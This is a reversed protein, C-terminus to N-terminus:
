RRILGSIDARLRRELSEEARGVQRRVVEGIAELDPGFRPERVTGTVRLPITLWGRRDTLAQLAEDSVDARSFLDRPLGVAVALDLSGDPDLAGAVELRAIETVLRTPDIELKGGALSVRSDLAEYAVGDLRTGVLRDIQSLLAVSPLTGAEIRLTMEAVAGSLGPGEGTGRLELRAAGLGGPLGLIRNLDIAGARMALRYRYPSQALDVELEDVTVVGAPTNSEFSDLLYRGADARFSAAIGALGHGDLSLSDIELWGRGSIALLLSAAEPDTAVERLVLDLGEVLTAGSGATSTSSLRGSELVVEGIELRLRSSEDELAPPRTGADRPAPSSRGAAPLAPAASVMEIVPRELRLREVVLEGGLL